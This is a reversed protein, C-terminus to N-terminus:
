CENCGEDEIKPEPLPEQGNPLKVVLKHDKRIFFYSNLTMNRQKGKVIVDIFKGNEHALKARKRTVRFDTYDIKQRPAEM